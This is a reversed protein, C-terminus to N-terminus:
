TKDVAAALDYFLIKYFIISITFTESSDHPNILTITTDTVDKVTYVHAGYITVKSGDSTPITVEIGDQGGCNKRTKCQEIAYDVLRKNYGYKYLLEKKYNLYSTYEYDNFRSYSASTNIRLYKDRIVKIDLEAIDFTKTKGGMIGSSEKEMQESMYKAISPTLFKSIATIKNYGGEVIYYERAPNIGSCWYHSKGFLLSLGEYGQGGENLNKTIGNQEMLKLYAIEIAIIDKDGVSLNFTNGDNFKYKQTYEAMELEEASINVSFGKLEINIKNKDDFVNVNKNGRGELTCDKFKVTANGDSDWTIIDSLGGPVGKLTNIAALLWCFGVDGQKSSGVTADKTEINQVKSKLKDVIKSKCNIDGNKFENQLISINKAYYDPMNDKILGCYYEFEYRFNHERFNSREFDYKTITKGVTADGIKPETQTQERETLEETRDNKSKLIKGTEKNIKINTFTGDHNNKRTTKYEENESYSTELTEGSGLYGDTSYEKIMYDLSTNCYSFDYFKTKVKTESNYTTEVTFGQHNEEYGSYSIMELNGDISFEEYRIDASDGFAGTCSYLNGSVANIEGM